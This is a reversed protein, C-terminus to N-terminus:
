RFERRYVQRTGGEPGKPAAEAPRFGLREYFRRAPLGEAVDEGFTVVSLVAPPQVVGFVHEV